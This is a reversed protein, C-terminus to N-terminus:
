GALTKINIKLHSAMETAGDHWQGDWSLEVQVPASDAELSRAQVTLRIRIANRYILNLNFPVYLPHLQVWKNKVISCLDAHATPGISRPGTITEQQRWKLPVAGSWAVKFQGDPGIDEIKLLVVEVHNATVWRRSNSVALHYYRAEGQRETQIDGEQPLLRVPTKEGDQSLLKISFEPPFFKARFGQGFLALLVAGFTAGLSLVQVSWTMWFQWEPTTNGM